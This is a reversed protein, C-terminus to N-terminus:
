SVRPKLLQLQMMGVDGSVDNVAVVVAGIDVQQYRRSVVGARAQTPAWDQNPGPGPQSGYPGM